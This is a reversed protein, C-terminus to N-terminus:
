KKTGLLLLNGDMMEPIIINGSGDITLDASGGIPTDPNLITEKGSELDISLVIGKKEFAMWDSVILTHDNLLGIGDYLGKRATLPAFRRETANLDIYGIEGPTDAMNGFTNLYVRNMGAHYCIGNAGTISGSFILEEAHTTDKDLHIIYIKNRDTATVLLTTDDKRTIDNLFATGSSLDINRVPKGSTIDFGRVQDIDTVFLTKGVLATGKPANLGTVFPKNGKAKGDPDLKWIVGDGDKAAPELAKGIDSVYYYQGDTAVSEPHHLPAKNIRQQGYVSGTAFVAATIALAKIM